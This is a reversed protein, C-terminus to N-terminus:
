RVNDKACGCDNEKLDKYIDAHDFELSTVVATHPLYHFFKARKDFFATDYEDGEIVFPAGKAGLRSSYELSKTQGGIFYGPSKGAYDLLHATLATTTTKGHTGAIVVPQRSALVAFKMWEPYSMYPLGRDLVAEIEPNGRSLANGVVAIDPDWHLNQASYDQAVVADLDSVMDSTPPYLPNDSGRVEWGAELALRAVAVMGAGGIGIFHARPKRGHPILNFM